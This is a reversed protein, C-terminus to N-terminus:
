KSRDIAFIYAKNIQRRCNWISSITRFQCKVHVHSLRLFITSRSQENSNRFNYRNQSGLLVIERKLRNGKTQIPWVFSAFGRSKMRTKWFWFNIVHVIWQNLFQAVKASLKVALRSHFTFFFVIAYWFGPIKFNFRGTYLTNHNNYGVVVIPYTCYVLEYTGLRYVSSINKRYVHIYSPWIHRYQKQDRLTIHILTQKKYTCLWPFGSARKKM